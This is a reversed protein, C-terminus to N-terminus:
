PIRAGVTRWSGSLGAREDQRMIEEQVKHKKYKKGFYIAYSKIKFKITDWLGNYSDFDSNITDQIIERIGENFEESKLLSNNLKWYGRGHIISHGKLKLSVYSHDSKFGHSISSDCVPYNVLKDDILFFDLRTQTNHQKDVHTFLKLNSHQIRFIDSFGWDSMINNYIIKM